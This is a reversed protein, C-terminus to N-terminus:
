MELMELGLFCISWGVGLSSVVYGLLVAFVLSVVLVVGFKLCVVRVRLRLDWVGVMECRRPRYGSGGGCVGSRGAGEV